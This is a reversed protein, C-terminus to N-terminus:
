STGGKKETQSFTIDMAIPSELWSGSGNLEFDEIKSQWEM